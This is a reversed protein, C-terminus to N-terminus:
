GVREVADEVLDHHVLGKAVPLGHLREDDVWLAGHQEALGEVDVFPRCTQAFARAIDLINGFVGAATVAAGAGPGQIVLPRPSYWKTSVVVINDAFQTAAFPHVKPYRGLKVGAVGARVDVSGVFRLVEGAAEAEELLASMQDDYDGLVRVFGDGVAEDGAPQWAELEAPVLSKVPVNELEIRLGCERALITVKRAVDCGSLDDRPDPETFGRAKADAVVESFRMGPRWTNFIYSLTGSLVGEVTRLEDGALRLARLPGLVPLGAGVTAETLLQARGQRAAAAIRDFRVLPGSGARKNATVVDIGSALWGEYSAASEESATADVLVARGSSRRAAAAVHAALRQLDTAVEGAPWGGAALAQGDSDAFLLMSKSRAAAVLVLRVLGERELSAAQSLLQATIEKGVLGYGVVGVCLTPLQPGGGVGGLVGFEVKASTEVVAAEPPVQAVQAVM